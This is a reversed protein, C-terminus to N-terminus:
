LTFVLGADHLQRRAVDRSLTAVDDRLPNMALFGGPCANPFGPAKSGDHAGKEEGHGRIYRYPDKGFAVSLLALLDTLSQYQKESAPAVRGDFILGIGLGPKSFRRAHYGIEDLPLTQWIVGDFEPPGLNGGVMLSYAVQGGTAKAVEPWRPDKGTFAACIEIADYGLVIGTESDVGCRHIYFAELRTWDRDDPRGDSVQDIVNQIKLTM